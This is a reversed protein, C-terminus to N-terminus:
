THIAGATCDKEVMLNIAGGTSKSGPVVYRSLWVVLYQSYWKSTHLDSYQALM